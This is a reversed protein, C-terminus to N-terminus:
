GLNGMALVPELWWRVDHVDVQARLLTLVDEVQRQPLLMWLVRKQIRGRVQEAVSAHAFDSAHGEAHLLTYGPFRADSAIAETLAAELRPPFVLVLRVSTNM